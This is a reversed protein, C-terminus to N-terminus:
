AALLQRCIHKASGQRRLNPQEILMLPFFSAPVCWMGIEWEACGEAAAAAAVASHPWPGAM